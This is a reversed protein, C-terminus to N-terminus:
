CRIHLNCFNDSNCVQVLSSRFNVLFHRRMENGYWEILDHEEPQAQPVKKLSSSKLLYTLADLTTKSPSGHRNWQKLFKAKEMGDSAELVAFGKDPISLFSTAADWARDWAAREPRAGQSGDRSSLRRSQSPSAIETASEFSRDAALLSLLPTIPPPAVAQDLSAPSFVSDFVRKRGISLPVNQFM